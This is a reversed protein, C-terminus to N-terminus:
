ESGRIEAMTMTKKGSARKEELERNKQKVLDM